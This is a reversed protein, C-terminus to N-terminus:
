LQSRAAPVQMLDQMTAVRQQGNSPWPLTDALPQQPLQRVPQHIRIAPQAPLSLTPLNPADALQTQWHQWPQASASNLSKGQHPQLQSAVQGQMCAAMEGVRASCPLMTRQVPMAALM